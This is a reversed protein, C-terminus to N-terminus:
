PRDAGASRSRIGARNLMRVIALAVVAALTQALVRCALTLVLIGPALHEPSFVPLSVAFLVLGSVAAAILLRAEPRLMRRGTRALLWLMGDVTLAFALLPVLAVIGLPSFAALVLGVLLSTLITAGAVGTYRRAVLPAVAHIGALLAYAPPSAAALLGLFPVLPLTVLVAVAALAACTLLVRTARM